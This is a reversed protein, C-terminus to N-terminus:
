RLIAEAQTGNVLVCTRGTAAQPGTAPNTDQSDPVEDYAVDVILDEVYRVGLSILRQNTTIRTDKIDVGHWLQIACVLHPERTPARDPDLASNTPAYSPQLMMGAMELTEYLYPGIMIAADERRTAPPTFALPVHDNNGNLWLFKALYAELADRWPVGAPLNLTRLLDDTFAARSTAEDNHIGTGYARAPAHRVCLKTSHHAFGAAVDERQAARDLARCNDVNGITVRMKFFNTGYSIM